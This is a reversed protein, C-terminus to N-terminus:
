QQEELQLEEQQEASFSRKEEELEEQLELQRPMLQKVCTRRSPRM